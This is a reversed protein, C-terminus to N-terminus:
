VIATTGRRFARLADSASVTVYGDNFLPDPNAGGDTGWPNRLRLAVPQRIMGIPTSVWAYDVGVVDYCHNEVLPSTSWLTVQTCYTVARGLNLAEAFRNLLTTANPALTEDVSRVPAISRGGFAAFTESPFGGDLNAYQGPLRRDRESWFIGGEETPRVYAYAKEMLPGWIANEFGLGAYPLAGDSDVPLDADIRLYREKGNAFFRVAYTGDGLSVISQLISNPNAGAMSSLAGLHWCDGIGGQNIDDRLPGFSGFLKNSQFDVMTLGPAFPDLLRPGDLERNVVQTSLFTGDPAILDEFKSVRHLTRGASEETSLDGVLESWEADMWFSDFGEDGWVQDVQSGGLSILTDNGSGGRLVNPSRNGILVDNGGGGTANEIFGASDVSASVTRGRHTALNSSGALNINVAEGWQLDSFDLTDIGGNALEVVTDVENVPRRLFRYRDNGPGGVLRNNSANGTLVDNGNGGIANEIFQAQGVGGTVLLRNAHQALANDSSLDITVPDNSTLASFSITDTGGGANEVVTDTEWNTTSPFFYFDNGSRGELVNNARNGTIVDNRLGGVVNEFQQAMNPVGTISSGSHINRLLHSAMAYDNNLNVTVPYILSTFDLTDVGGGAYEVLTDTEVATPVHFVYKDNNAGGDLRDNGDGGVLSDNGLRGVLYDDDGQGFLEDDGSGGYLYDRGPGGYAVSRISTQNDFVDVGGRGDFRIERIPSFLWNWSTTRTEGGGTLTIKISFLSSGPEIRVNDPVDQRDTISLLDNVSDYQLDAAFLERKQLAELNLSRSSRSRRNPSRGKKAFLFRKSPLPLSRTM